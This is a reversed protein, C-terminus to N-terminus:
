IAETAAKRVRLWKVRKSESRLLGRLPMLSSNKRYGKLSTVKLGSVNRRLIKTSQKGPRKGQKTPSPRETNMKLSHGDRVKTILGSTFLMTGVVRVVGLLGRGDV